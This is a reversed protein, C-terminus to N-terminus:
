SEDWTDWINFLVEMALQMKVDHDCGDSWLEYWTYDYDSWYNGECVNINTDTPGRWKGFMPCRPCFEEPYYDPHVVYDDLDDDKDLTTKLAVNCATCANGADDSLGAVRIYAKSKRYEEGTALLWWMEIAQEKPTM